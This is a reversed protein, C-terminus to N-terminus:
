EEVVFLVKNPCAEVCAPEDGNCLDCKLAIKKGSATEFPKIANNPCVMVCSFCGVCKDLNIVVYGDPTREIAGTICAKLCEADECHRCIIPFSAAGADAFNNKPKIKEEKYATVINKSKSFNVACAVLCLSCGICYEDKIKIKKM